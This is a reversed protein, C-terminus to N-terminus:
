RKVFGFDSGLSTVFWVKGYIERRKVNGIDAMRSDDSGAHNDGIVFYEGDGLTLPEAAVGSDKINKAHIHEKVAKNNIYVLGDQIQITEGPLGVIRKIFYHANENGNPKFAVVDGRKPRSANYVLRNVMVVDGNKLAPKMSDGANSVRQGFFWVLVFAVVCVTVIQLIWNVIAGTNKTESHSKEQQFKLGPKRAAFKLDREKKVSQKRKAQRKRKKRFNLDAM